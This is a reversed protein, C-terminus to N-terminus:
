KIFNALIGNIFHKSKPESFEDCLNLAENVAGVPQIQDSTKIEVLALLLIAQDIKSLREWTWGKKLKSALESSLQSSQEMAAAILQGAYAPLEPLNLSTQLHNLVTMQDWTPNQQALFIGQLAVQRIEHQNM